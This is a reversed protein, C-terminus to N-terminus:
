RCSDNKLQAALYNLMESGWVLFPVLVPGRLSRNGHSHWYWGM